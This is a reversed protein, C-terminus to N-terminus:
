PIVATMLKGTKVEVLEPLPVIPEFHPEEGHVISDGEEGEGGSGGEEEGGQGFLKQGAGQWSFPKNEDLVYPCLPINIPKIIM